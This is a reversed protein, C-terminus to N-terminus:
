KYRPDVDNSSILMKGVIIDEDKYGMRHLISRFDRSLKVHWTIKDIGKLKLQQESYKILKIGTMGLRHTDKLFLIDNAAVLINAYHLHEDIIFGSYGILKGDDRATFFVYRDTNELSAYRDWRPNLKVIDKYLTLEEYHKDLIESIEDKLETFLEPQFTIM